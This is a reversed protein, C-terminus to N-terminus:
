SNDNGTGADQDPKKFLEAWSEKTLRGPVILVGGRTPLEPPTLLKYARAVALVSAIASLNRDKLAKKVLTRVNVEFATM